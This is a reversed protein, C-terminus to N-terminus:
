LNNNPNIYFEELYEEVKGREPSPNSLVFLIDNLYFLVAMVPVNYFRSSSYVYDIRKVIISVPDQAERYYGLYLEDIIDIELQYQMEQIIMSVGTFWGGVYYVKEKQTWTSWSAGDYDEWSNYDKCHSIVLVGFFLLTILFCVLVLKSEFNM